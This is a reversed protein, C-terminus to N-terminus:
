GLSPLDTHREPCRDRSKMAVEDFNGPSALSDGAVADTWPFKRLVIRVDRWLPRIDLEAEIPAREQVIWGTKKFARTYTQTVDLDPM